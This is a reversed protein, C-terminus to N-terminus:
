CDAVAAVTLAAVPDKARGAQVAGSGVGFRLLGAGDGDVALLKFAEGRNLDVRGTRGLRQRAQVLILYRLPPYFPRGGPLGGRPPRLPANGPGFIM